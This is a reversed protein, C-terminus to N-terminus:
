VQSSSRFGTPDRVLPCHFRSFWLGSSCYPALTHPSLAPVFCRSGCRVAVRVSGSKTRGSRLCAALPRALGFMGQALCGARTGILPRLVPVCTSRHVVPCAVFPAPNFWYPTMFGPTKRPTIRSGGCALGTAGLPQPNAQLGALGLCGAVGM